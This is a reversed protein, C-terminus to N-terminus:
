AGSRLLQDILREREDANHFRIVIKGQETGGELTVRAALARRLNEEVTRIHLREQTDARASPKKRPPPEKLGQVLDKRTASVSSDPRVEAAAKNKAADTM